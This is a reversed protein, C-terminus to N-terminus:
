RTSSGHDTDPGSCDSPCFQGPTCQKPGPPKCNPDKSAVV